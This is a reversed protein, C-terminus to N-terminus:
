PQWVLALTLEPGNSGNTEVLTVSAFEGGLPTGEWLAGPEVAGPQGELVSEAWIDYYSILQPKMAIPYVLELRLATDDESAVTVRGGALSSIPFQTKFTIDDGSATAVTTAVATATTTSPNAGAPTTTSTAAAADPPASRAQSGAPDSGGCAAAVLALAAVVMTTWRYM